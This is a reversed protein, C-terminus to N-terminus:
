GGECGVPLSPLSRSPITRLSGCEGQIIWGQLPAPDSPRRAQTADANRLPLPHRQGVESRGHTKITERCGAADDQCNASKCNEPKEQLHIQLNEPNRKGKDRRGGIKAVFGPLAAM